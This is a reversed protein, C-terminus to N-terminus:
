ALSMAVASLTGYAKLSAKTTAVSATVEKTAARGMHKGVAARVTTRGKAQISKKLADMINIVQPAPKGEKEITVEPARQEVKARLYEKVAATFQDPMELVKCM